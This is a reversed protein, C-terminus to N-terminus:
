GPPVPSSLSIESQRAWLAPIVSLPPAAAGGAEYDIRILDPLVGSSEKWAEHWTKPANPDPSGYYRIAIITGTKALVGTLSPGDVPGARLQIAEDRQLVEVVTLTAMGLPPEDILTAFSMGLADGSLVAGLPMAEIWQRLRNRDTLPGIDAATAGVRSLARGTMGLSSALILAAAAMVWLAILLELLTLGAQRNRQAM